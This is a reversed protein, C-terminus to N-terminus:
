KNKIILELENIKQHLIDFEIDCSEVFSLFRRTSVPVSRFGALMREDRLENMM